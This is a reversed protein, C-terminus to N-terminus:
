YNVSRTALDVQVAPKALAALTARAFAQAWAGHEDDRFRPEGAAEAVCLVKDATLVKGSARMPECGLFVFQEDLWQRALEHPMPQAEELDFRYTRPEGWTVTVQSRM